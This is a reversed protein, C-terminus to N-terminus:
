IKQLGRKRLGGLLLYSLALEDLLTTGVVPAAGSTIALVVENVSKPFLVVDKNVHYGFSVVM